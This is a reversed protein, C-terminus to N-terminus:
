GKPSGTGDRMFHFSQSYEGSRLKHTVSTVQFEGNYSLGAGRIVVKRNPRLVHGYRPTDIEGSGSVAADANEQVAESLANIQSLDFRAACGLRETRLPMAPQLAMGTPPLPTGPATVVNMQRDITAGESVGVPALPDNSFRLSKLNTAGGMNYTLTPQAPGMAYKKGWYAGNVNIAIYDTAFVFGFHRGLDRIYDLDTKGRQQM